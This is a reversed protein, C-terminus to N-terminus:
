SRPPPVKWGKTQGRVICGDPREFTMVIQVDRGLVDDDKDWCFQLKYGEGFVMSHFTHLGETLIPWERVLTRVAKGSATRDLRYMRARILGNAAIGKRTKRSALVVTCRFGEVNLDGEQDFSQFPNMDYLCILKAVENGTTNPAVTKPTAACGCFAGLVACTVLLTKRFWGQM